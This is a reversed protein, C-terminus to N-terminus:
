ALAEEYIGAVRGAAASAEYREFARARGAEGMRRRLAPDRLLGRLSEALAEPTPDPVHAGHVGDEVVDPIGGAPAVVAALGAAMAEVLAMPCGEALRTPLVFVECSALLERKAEGTVHGPAAVHELGEAERLVQERRPGDGALALRLGPFEGALLRYARVLALAGKGPAMRSLFLLGPPESGADVPRQPVERPDFAAGLVHVREPDVGLGALDERFASALVMFRRARGYAIRFLFRSFRGAAIRRALERDFGHFFVVCPLGLLGLVLAFLGDRPLARPKFSPNLHCLDFSRGLALGALRVADAVPRLFRAWGPDGPRAGITMRRARIEPPVHALLLRLYAVVGGPWSPDRGLVLVTLM